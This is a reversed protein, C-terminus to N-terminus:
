TDHAIFCGTSLTSDGHFRYGLTSPLFFSLVSWGSLLEHKLAATLM